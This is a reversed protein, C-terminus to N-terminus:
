LSLLYCLSSLFWKITVWLGMQLTLCDGSTMGHASLVLSKTGPNHFYQTPSRPQVPLTGIVEWANHRRGEGHAM